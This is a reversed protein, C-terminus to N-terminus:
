DPWGKFVWEIDFLDTWNLFQKNEDIDGIMIALGVHRGSVNYSFFLYVCWKNEKILKNANSLSKNGNKTSLWM